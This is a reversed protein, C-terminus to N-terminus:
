LRCLKVRATLRGLDLPEATSAIAEALLFSIRQSEITEDSNLAELELEAALGVGGGRTRSNLETRDESVSRNSLLPLVM